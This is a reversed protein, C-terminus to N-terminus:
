TGAYVAREDDKHTHRFREYKKEAAAFEFEDLQMYSWGSVEAYDAGTESAREWLIPNNARFNVGIKM